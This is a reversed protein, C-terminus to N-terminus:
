TKFVPQWPFWIDHKVSKSQIPTAFPFGEPSKAIAQLQVYELESQLKNGRNVTCLGNKQIAYLLVLSRIAIRSLMYHLCWSRIVLGVSRAACNTGVIKKQKKQLRFDKHKKLTKTDILFQENKRQLQKKAINSASLCSWTRIIDPYHLSEELM